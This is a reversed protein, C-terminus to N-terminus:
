WKLELGGQVLAIEGGYVCTLMYCASYAALHIPLGAESYDRYSSHKLSTLFKVLLTTLILEFFSKEQFDERALVNM